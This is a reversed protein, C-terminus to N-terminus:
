FSERKATIHVQRVANSTNKHFPFGTVISQSHMAKISYKVHSDQRCAAKGLPNKELANFSTKVCSISDLYKEFTFISSRYINVVKKRNM